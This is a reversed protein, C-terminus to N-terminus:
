LTVRGYNHLECQHINNLFSRLLFITCIAMALHINFTTEHFILFFGFSFSILATANMKRLSPKVPNPKLLTARSFPKFLFSISRFKRPTVHM